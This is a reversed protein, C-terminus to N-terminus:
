GKSPRPWISCLETPRELSRGRRNRWTPPFRCRRHHQRREDLGDPGGGGHANGYPQIRDKPQEVWSQSKARDGAPHDLVHEDQEPGEAQKHQQTHAPLRCPGGVRGRKLGGSVCQDCHPFPRRPKDRPQRKDDPSEHVVVHHVSRSENGSPQRTPTKNSGDQAQDGVEVDAEGLVETERGHVNNEAGRYTELFHDQGHPQYGFSEIQRSYTRDRRRSHARRRGYTESRAAARQTQSGGISTADPFTAWRFASM